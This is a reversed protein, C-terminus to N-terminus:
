QKQLMILELDGRHFKFENEVRSLFDVQGDKSAWGTLISAFKCSTPTAIFENIYQELELFVLLFFEDFTCGGRLGTLWFTSYLIYRM